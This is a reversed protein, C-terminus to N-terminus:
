TAVRAAFASVFIKFVKRVLDGPFSRPASGRAIKRPNNWARRAANFRQRRLMKPRRRFSRLAAWGTVGLTLTVAAAALAVPRWSEVVTSRLEFARRRRRDLERLTGVLEDRLRDATKQTQEIQTTM